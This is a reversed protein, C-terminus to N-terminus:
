LWRTDSIMGTRISTMRNEAEGLWYKSLEQRDQLDLQSSKAHSILLRGTVRAILWAPDIESTSSDSTLLSPSQYGTLRLQTPNGVVSLGSPTLKLYPTSGKVLEWQQPNLAKYIRTSSQVAKINNVYVTFAGKDVVMKIGVSIIASDSSPNALSIVHTTKTYASTAPIDLSEVPSACLATDDLLVQLDGADLAVTSYVEITIEDKGTLDLSNINDTALIDAAGAGAAVVLKLASDNLVDSDISATVDGDVLEDWVVDCDHITSILGITDVYEVTHIGKFGSLVAYEYKRAETYVNHIEKDQQCDDTVEMIAQDIADNIDEILFVKWMEYTDGDTLAQTFLPAMTCDFTESDFSTVFSREGAAISGAPTNIQVQRGRYENDGGRALGYTDKLSSTDVTTTVESIIVDGFNRGISQRIQLRTRSQIPQTM